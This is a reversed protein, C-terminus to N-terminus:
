IKELHLAHAADKPYKKHDLGRQRNPMRSIFLSDTQGSDSKTTLVHCKLEM